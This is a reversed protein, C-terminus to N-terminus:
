RLWRLEPIAGTVNIKKQVKGIGYDCGRGNCEFEGEVSRAHARQEQENKDGPIMGWM